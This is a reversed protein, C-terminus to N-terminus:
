SERDNQPAERRQLHEAENMVWQLARLYGIGERYKAFDGIGPGVIARIAGTLHETIKPKLRVWLEPDQYGKDYTAIEKIGDDLLSM